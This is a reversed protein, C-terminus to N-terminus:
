IQLTRILLTSIAWKFAVIGASSLRQPTTTSISSFGFDDYGKRSPDVGELMDVVVKSHFSTWALRGGKM